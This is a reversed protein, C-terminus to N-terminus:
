SNCARKPDSPWATPSRGISISWQRPCSRECGITSRQSAAVLRYGGSQAGACPLRRARSAPRLPRQRRWASRRAGARGPRPPDHAPGLALSEAREAARPRRGARRAGPAALGPNGHAGAPRVSRRGRADLGDAHPRAAAGRPLPEAPCPGRRRDCRLGRQLHSLHGGAGFRAAGRTRDARRRSADPGGQRDDEEGSRHAPRDDGREHPLRPRDRGDDARRDRAADARRAGRPVLVPHCATFILGLLEDGLDDDMAAEIAEVAHGRATLTAARDGRAQARADQRPPVGDIARRKAAAMLWAGPNDPVGTRPWESLAIVLADQALEEALDVDRVMRALGAILRAREIRFSAEIAQHTETAAVQRRRAPLPARPLCTALPSRPRSLQRRAERPHARADGRGGPTLSEAFDAMDFVPRIELESRGPMPNPCRKVWAVAEDM